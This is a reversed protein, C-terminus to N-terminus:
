PKPNCAKANHGAGMPGCSVLPGQGVDQSAMSRNPAVSKQLTPWFPCGSEMAGCMWLQGLTWAEAHIVSSCSCGAHKSGPADPNAPNISCRQLCLCACRLSIHKSGQGSNLRQGVLLAVKIQSDVHESAKCCVKRLAPWSPFSFMM